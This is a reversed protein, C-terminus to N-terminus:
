HEDDEKRDYANEEELYMQAKEEACEICEEISDWEEGTCGIAWDSWESNAYWGSAQLKDYTRETNAIYYRSAAANFLDRMTEPDDMSAAAKAKQFNEEADYCM